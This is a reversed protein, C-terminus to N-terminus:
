GHLAGESLAFMKVQEKIPFKESDGEYLSAGPGNLFISVEEGENLLFNGFRVTNWKIEPDNSNLILLVHM